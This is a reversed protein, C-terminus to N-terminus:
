PNAGVPAGNVIMNGHEDVPQGAALWASIADNTLQQAPAQQQPQPQAPTVVMALAQGMARLEREAVLYEQEAAAYAKGTAERRDMALRWKAVVQAAQVILHPPITVTTQM